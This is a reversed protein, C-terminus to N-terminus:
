MAPLLAAERTARTQYLRYGVGILAVWLLDGLLTGKLFPLAMAYCTLLGEFTRPYLTGQLWVGLNSLAFFMVGGVFASTLGGGARNRLARALMAQLAFGAYVFISVFGLFEYGYIKSLALDSLLMAITTTLIAMRRSLLRGSIVAVAGTPGFNAPHPVIRFVSVLLILGFAVM